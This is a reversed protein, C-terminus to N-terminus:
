WGVCVDEAIERPHRLRATKRCTQAGAQRNLPACVDRCFADHRIRWGRLGFKSLSSASGVPPASTGDQPM